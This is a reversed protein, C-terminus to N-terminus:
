EKLDEKKDNVNSGGDTHSGVKTPNEKNNNENTDTTPDPNTAEPNPNPTHFNNPPKKRSCCFFSCYQGM